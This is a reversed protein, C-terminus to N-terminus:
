CELTSCQIEIRSSIQVIDTSPSCTGLVVDLLDRGATFLFRLCCHYVIDDICTDVVQVVFDWRLYNIVLFWLMYIVIPIWTRAQSLYLKM